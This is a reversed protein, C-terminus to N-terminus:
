YIVLLLLLSSSDSKTERAFALRQRVVAVAVNKSLIGPMVTIEEKTKNRKQNPKNPPRSFFIKPVCQWRANTSNGWKTKLVFTRFILFFRVWGLNPRCSIPVFCCLAFAPVAFGDRDSVTLTKEVTLWRAEETKMTKTSFCSCFRTSKNRRRSTLERENAENTRSSALVLLPQYRERSNRGRVM